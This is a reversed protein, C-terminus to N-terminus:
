SGAAFSVDSEVIQFLEVQDVKVKRAAYKSFTVYNGPKLECPILIGNQYIGRGVAVVIGHVNDERANEPIIISGYRDNQPLPLVLDRNGLPNGGISQLVQAVHAAEPVRLAQARHLEPISADSIDEPKLPTAPVLSVGKVKEIATEM